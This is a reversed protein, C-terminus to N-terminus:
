RQTPRPSRLMPAVQGLPAGVAVANGDARLMDDFEIDFLAALRQLEHATFCARGREKALFGRVSSGIANACVELSLGRAWRLQRWTWQGVAVPEIGRGDSVKDKGAVQAETKGSIGRM